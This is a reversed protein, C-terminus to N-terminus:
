SLGLTMMYARDLLPLRRPYRKYTVDNALKVRCVCACDAEPSRVCFFCLPCHVWLWLRGGPVDVEEKDLAVVVVERGVKVVVGDVGKREMGEREKKREAGKPQEAVGVIDGVRLGHEPLERGSGSAGASSGSGAVAADLELELV